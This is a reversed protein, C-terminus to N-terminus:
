RRSTQGGGGLQKGWRPNRAHAGYVAKGIVVDEAHCKRQIVTGDTQAAVLDIGHDRGDLGTLREREPWDRWRWIGAVDSERQGAGDGHVSARVM